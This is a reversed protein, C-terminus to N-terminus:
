ISYNEKPKQIQTKDVADRYHEIEKSTQEDVDKVSFIDHTYSGLILLSAFDWAHFHIPTQVELHEKNWFHLRLKVKNKLRCIGLKFFKNPHFYSHEVIESPIGDELLSIIFLRLGDIGIGALANLYNEKRNEIPDDGLIEMLYNEIGEKNFEMLRKM